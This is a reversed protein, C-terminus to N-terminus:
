IIESAAMRLHELFCAKHLAKTLFIWFSISGCINEQFNEQFKLVLMKFFM